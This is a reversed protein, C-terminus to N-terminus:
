AKEVKLIEDSYFRCTLGAIEFWFADPNDAVLGVGTVVGQVGTLGHSTKISVFVLDELLPIM